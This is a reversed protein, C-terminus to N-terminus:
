KGLIKKGSETTRYRQLRSKPKDQITMALLGAELLPRLVQNRFKTRDTRGSRRMLAQIPKSDGSAELVLVQHRSPAEGRCWTRDPDPVDRM